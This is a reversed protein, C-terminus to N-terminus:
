YKLIVSWSGGAALDNDLLSPRSAPIHFSNLNICVTRSWQTSWGGAERVSKKIGELISVGM